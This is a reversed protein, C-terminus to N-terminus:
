FNGHSTPQGNWLSCIECSFLFCKESFCNNTLMLRPIPAHTRSVLVPDHIILLSVSFALCLASWCLGCLQGALTPNQARGGGLDAVELLDVSQQTHVRSCHLHIIMGARRGKRVNLSSFILYYSLLELVTKTRGSSPDRGEIRWLGLGAEFAVAM